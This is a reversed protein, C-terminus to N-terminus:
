VELDEEDYQPESELVEQYLQKAIELNSEDVFIKESVFGGGFLVKISSSDSESSFPIGNDKLVDRYIEATVIDEVCVALVPNEIIIDQEESVDTNKEINLQAGCVKCLQATDECEASCVHCKIM